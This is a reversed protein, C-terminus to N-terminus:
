EMWKFFREHFYSGSEPVIHVLQALANVEPQPADLDWMGVPGVAM